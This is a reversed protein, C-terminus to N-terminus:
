SVLSLYRAVSRTGVAQPHMSAKAITFLQHIKFAGIDERGTVPGLQTVDERICRKELVSTDDYIQEEPVRGNRFIIRASILRYTCNPKLKGQYWRM